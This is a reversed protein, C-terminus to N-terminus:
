RNTPPNLLLLPFNPNHARAPPRPAVPASTVAPKSATTSASSATVVPSPGADESNRSAVEDQTRDLADLVQDLAASAALVAARLHRDWRPGPLRSLFVRLTRPALGERACFERQTLGSTRWARALEQQEAPTFRRRPVRPDRDAVVSFSSAETSSAPGQNRPNSAAEDNSIM